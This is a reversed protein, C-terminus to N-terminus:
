ATQICTRIYKICPGVLFLTHSTEVLHVGVLLIRDFEHLSSVDARCYSELIETCSICDTDLVMRDCELGHLERIRDDSKGNLRLSLLIEVLEPKGKCLKGFLVRCECDLCVM